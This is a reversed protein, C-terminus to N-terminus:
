LVNSTEGHVCQEAVCVFCVVPFTLSRVRPIDSKQDDRETERDRQRETDKDRQRASM